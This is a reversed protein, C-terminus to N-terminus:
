KYGKQSIFKKSVFRCFDDAREERKNQSNNQGVKFRYYEVANEGKSERGDRSPKHATPKRNHNFNYDFSSDRSL